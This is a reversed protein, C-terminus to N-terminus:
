LLETVEKSTKNLTDITWIHKKNFKKTTIIMKQANCKKISKFLYNNRREKKFRLLNYEDTNKKKNSDHKAFLSKAFYINVNNTFLNYFFNYHEETKLENDWKFKLLINRRAIFFQMIFDCKKFEPTKYKDEDIELNIINNKQSFYGYCSRYEYEGTIM